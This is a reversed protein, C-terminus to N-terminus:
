QLKCNLYTKTKVYDSISIQKLLPRNKYIWEKNLFKLHIEYATLNTKIYWKNIRLQFTDLSTHQQNITIQELVYIDTIINNYIDVIYLNWDFVTCKSELQNLWDWHSIIDKKSVSKLIHLTKESLWM